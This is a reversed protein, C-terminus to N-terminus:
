LGARRAGPFSSFVAPAANPANSNTARPAAHYVFRSGNRCRAGLVPTVVFLAGTAGGAAGASTGISAGFAAAVLAGPSGLTVLAGTAPSAADPNIRGYLAGSIGLVGDALAVSFVSAAAGTLAAFASSGTTFFAAGAAFAEEPPVYTDAFTELFRPFATVLVSDFACGAASTTRSSVTIGAFSSCETDGM